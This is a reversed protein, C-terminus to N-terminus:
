VNIVEERTYDDDNARLAAVAVEIRDSITAAWVDAMNEAYTYDRSDFGQIFPTESMVHLLETPLTFLGGTGTFIGGVQIEPEGYMGMLQKDRQSWDESYISVKYVDDNLVYFERIKM